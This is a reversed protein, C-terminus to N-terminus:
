QVGGRKVYRRGDTELFRRVLVTHLAACEPRDYVQRAHWIVAELNCTRNPRLGINLSSYILPLVAPDALLTDLKADTWSNGAFDLRQKLDSPRRRTM